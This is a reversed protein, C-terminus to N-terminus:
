VTQRTIHAADRNVNLSHRRLDASCTLNDHLAHCTHLSQPLLAIARCTCTKM